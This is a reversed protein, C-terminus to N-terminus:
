KKLSIEPWGNNWLLKEIRLKSRGKDAADYGHFVVYDNGNFNYVSNHGVGYWNEDGQLLLNGGANAMSVGDKDLYPGTVKKSRGVIMKYTSKPGKCCYDTSAFLYYYNGKKYIFPAEIANGGADAPNDDVAPPNETNPEKKRSAITSIKSVDEAVATRDKSLKILKL